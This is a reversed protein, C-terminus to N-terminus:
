STSWCVSEQSMTQKQALPQETILDSESGVCSGSSRIKERPGEWRQCVVVMLAVIGDAKRLIILTEHKSMTRHARQLDVCMETWVPSGAVASRCRRSTESGRIIDKWRLSFCHTRQETLLLPNGWGVSAERRIVSGQNRLVSSYYEVAASDRGATRLGTQSAAWKLHLKESLGAKGPWQRWIRSFYEPM